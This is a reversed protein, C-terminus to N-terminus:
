GYLQKLYAYPNVYQKKYANYIRLDLHSGTGGSTSYTSGTNGMRIVKDGTNVRQGVKLNGIDSLHSYQVIHGNSDRVKVYNGYGKEGQKKGVQVEEVVGGTFFPIPTGIQNAIDIGPHKAEYRTSGMYPTTEVGLEKFMNSYQGSPTSDYGYDSVSPSASAVQRPKYQSTINKGIQMLNKFGESQDPQIPM